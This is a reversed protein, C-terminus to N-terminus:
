KSMPGQVVDIGVRCNARTVDVSGSVTHVDVPVSGTGYEVTESGIGVSRKNLRGSVTHLTVRSDVPDPLRLTVNSSVGNIRTKALKQPAIAVKGSVTEVRVGSASGQSDIRGSVTKLMQEGAVGRVDIPASVSTVDLRSDKPVRLVLRIFSEGHCDNEEQYGCEGCCVEVEVKDTSGRVDVHWPNGSKGGEETAVVSAENSAGAAIEISGDVSTVEIRPSSNTQFKLDKPTFAIAMATAALVPIM